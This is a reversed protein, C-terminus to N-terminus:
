DHTIGGPLQNHTVVCHQSCRFRIEPRGGYDNIYTVVPAPGYDATSGPLIKSEKPGLMLPTFQSIGTHEDARRAAVLTIYYASPNIIRWGNEQRVMSLQSLWPAIMSNSNTESKLAIPRYFIKIRNQLAINLSNPTNNRPPIERLNLYFLTERDQRLLRASPLSQIKIQALAGPEIRQIPPLMLLPGTVKNGRSDEIWGQALYPDRKNLNRIVISTSPIDANFIVRSQHLVIVAHAAPFACFTVVSMVYPLYRSLPIIPM